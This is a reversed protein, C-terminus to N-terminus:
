SNGQVNVKWKRWLIFVGDRIVKGEDVARKEAKYMPGFDREFYSVMFVFVLMLIPYFRYPITQLFVDYANETSGVMLLGQHILGVEYGIWSSIIFLSTVPASTADVIFSLKERSIRMKDTIPRMLNGVILTNAYDDFFIAVGMLWTSVLGSKRKKAFRTIVDALGKTGGSKSILGVVGGFLSTFVIIQIHSTDTLANIIYTDVLRLLGIVPNYDYIFVAGLYIGIMLSIIVQRLLLALLIAVIPPIISLWAPLIRINKSEINIGLFSLNFNGISNLVISTDVIGNKVNFILSLKSEGDTLEANVTKLTDPLEEIKLNFSIGQLGIRSTTV